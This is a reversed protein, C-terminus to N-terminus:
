KAKHDLPAWKVKHDLLVLQDKAGMLGVHGLPDERTNTDQVVRTKVMEETEAMGVMAVMEATAVMVDTEALNFVHRSRAIKNPTLTTITMTTTTEPHITHRIIELLTLPIEPHILQLIIERPIM